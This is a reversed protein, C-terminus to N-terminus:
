PTMEGLKVKVATVGPVMGVKAQTDDRLQARMPCGAITLALEVTAVGHEDVTADRVMGLEVVDAHLEPDVVHRLADLLQDRSPRDMAARSKVPSRRPLM